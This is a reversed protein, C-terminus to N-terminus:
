TTMESQEFDRLAEIVPLLKSRDLGVTLLRIKPNEKGTDAAPVQSEAPDDLQPWSDSAIVFIGRAPHLKDEVIAMKELAEKQTMTQSDVCCLVLDPRCFKAVDAVLVINELEEALYILTLGSELLVLLDTDLPLWDREHSANV